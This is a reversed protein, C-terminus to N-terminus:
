QSKKKQNIQFFVEYMLVIVEKRVAIIKELKDNGKINKYEYHM